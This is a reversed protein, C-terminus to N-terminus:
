SKEEAVTTVMPGLYRLLCGDCLLASHRGETRGDWTLGKAADGGCREALLRQGTWRAAYIITGECQRFGRAGVRAILERDQEVDWVESAM